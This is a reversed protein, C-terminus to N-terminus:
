TRTPPCWPRLSDLAVGGYERVINKELLLRDMWAKGALSKVLKLRCAPDALSSGGPCRSCDAVADTGHRGQRFTLPCGPEVAKITLGSLARLVDLM